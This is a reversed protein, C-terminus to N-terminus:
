SGSCAQGRTIQRQKGHPLKNRCAQLTLFAPYHGRRKKQKRRPEYVRLFYLLWNSKFMVTNIIWGINESARLQDLRTVHCEGIKLVARTAFLIQLIIFVIADIQWSFTSAYKDKSMIQEEFSVTARPFSNAERFLYHGHVFIRAYKRAFHLSNNIYKEEM